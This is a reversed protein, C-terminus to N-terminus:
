WVVGYIRMNLSWSAAVSTNQGSDPIVRAAWGMRSVLVKILYRM